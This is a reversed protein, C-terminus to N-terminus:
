LHSMNMNELKSKIYSCGAHTDHRVMKVIVFFRAFGDYQTNFTYASKFDMSKRKANTTLSNKIWLGLMKYRLRQQSIVEKNATDYLGATYNATTHRGLDAGSNDACLIECHSDVMIQTSSPYSLIINKVETTAHGADRSIVILVASKFGFTSVADEM